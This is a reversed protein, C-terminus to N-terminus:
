DDTMVYAEKELLMCSFELLHSSSYEYPLSYIHRLFAEADGRLTIGRLEAVIGQFEKLDPFRCTVNSRRFSSEANRMAQVVDPLPQGERIALCVAEIRSDNKEVAKLSALM